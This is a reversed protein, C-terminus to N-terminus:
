EKEETDTKGLQLRFGTTFYLNGTQCPIPISLSCRLYGDHTDLSQNWLLPGLMIRFSKFFQGRFDSLFNFSLKNKLNAILAVDTEHFSKIKKTIHNYSLIALSCPVIPGLPHYFGALLELNNFQLQNLWTKCEELLRYLPNAISNKQSIGNCQLSDEILLPENLTLNATSQIDNNFMEELSSSPDLRYTNELQSGPLQPAFAYVLHPEISSSFISIQILILPLIGTM